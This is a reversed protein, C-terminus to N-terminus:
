RLFHYVSASKEHTRGGYSPTGVPRLLLRSKENRGQCEASGCAGSGFVVTYDSSDVDRCISVYETGKCM